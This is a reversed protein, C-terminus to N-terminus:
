SALVGDGPSTRDSECCIVPTFVELAGLTFTSTPILIKRARQVVLKDDTARVM